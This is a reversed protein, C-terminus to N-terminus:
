PRPAPDAPRVNWAERQLEMLRAILDGTGDDRPVSLDAIVSMGLREALAVSRHNQADTVCGVRDLGMTTFAQGVLATAAETAMGRGWVSPSFRWGITVAPLAEAAVTPVALGVVGVLMDDVRKRVACGGFGYKFWMRAQRDAFARTEERTLGRDHEFRWVEPDAFMTVLEDLDDDGLPRLSLRQTLAGRLPAIV